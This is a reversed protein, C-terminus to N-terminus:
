SVLQLYGMDKLHHIIDNVAEEVAMKNTDIVIEPALPQEYPDDIGTFSKLIGARAQKYLGKSDRQECVELPTSVYVEIFGGFESVMERVNTRISQYPSIAASIAIGRHKTIESAVYGIRMINLDRHEKSFSLESSLNKRIVDGDLLTISRSTMEML